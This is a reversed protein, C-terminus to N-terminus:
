LSQYIALFFDQLVVTSSLGAPVFSFDGSGRNGVFDWAQISPPRLAIQTSWLLWRECAL